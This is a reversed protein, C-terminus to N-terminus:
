ELENPLQIFACRIISLPPCKHIFEHCVLLIASVHSTCWISHSHCLDTEDRSGFCIGTHIVTHAQTYMGTADPRQTRTRTCIRTHTCACARTHTHTHLPYIIVHTKYSKRFTNKILEDLGLTYKKLSSARILSPPIDHSRQCCM